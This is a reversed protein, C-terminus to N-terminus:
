VGLRDNILTGMLLLEEMKGNVFNILNITDSEEFEIKISHPTVIHTIIM